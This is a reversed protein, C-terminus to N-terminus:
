FGSLKAVKRELASVKQELYAVKMALTDTKEISRGIALEQRVREIETEAISLEQAHKYTAKIRGKNIYRLITKSSVNLERAAQEANFYRMTKNQGTTINPMIVNTLYKGAHKKLLEDERALAEFEELTEFVIRKKVPYGREWINRIEQCKL